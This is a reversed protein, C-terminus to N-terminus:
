NAAPNMIQIAQRMYQYAVPSNYEYEMHYTAIGGKIGTSPRWKAFDLLLGGNKWLAEFNEGIICREVPMGPVQSNLRRIIGRVSGGQPSYNQLVYFDILPISRSDLHEVYSDVILLKGTGSKPGLYKSVAVLFVHFKAPDSLYGTPEYDFDFGDLDYREISDSVAKAALEMGRMLLSDDGRTYKRIFDKDVNTLFFDGVLACNVVKTGKVKRMHQMAAMHSSGLQPPGGWCSIIDMSDPITEWRNMMAATKGDGNSGGFWGYAIQHSTKKYARLNALYEETPVAPHQLSIAEPENQKKCSSGILVTFITIICINIIAKM